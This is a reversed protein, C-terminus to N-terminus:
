RVGNEFKRLARRLVKGSPGVPLEPIFIVQTPTKYSALRGACWGVIDAESTSGQETPVVYAVPTQGWITSPAAVVAADRVGPATRVVAEVEAPYVNQGGRIILDTRRDLIWYVGEDDQVGVDHTRLWGDVISQTTAGPDHWYQTMLGDGRLAIEGAHGPPAPRGEDDLVRAIMGKLPFGLYTAGPFPGILSPPLTGVIAPGGGETIGYVSFLDVGLRDRAEEALKSPMPAAGHALLVLSETESRDLQSVKMLLTIM